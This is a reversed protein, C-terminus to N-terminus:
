AKVDKRYRKCKENICAYAIPKETIGKSWGNSYIGAMKKKCSKCNM